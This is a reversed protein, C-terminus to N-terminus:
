IKKVLHPKRFSKECELEERLVRELNCGQGWPAKGQSLLHPPFLGQCRGALGDNQNTSQNLYNM